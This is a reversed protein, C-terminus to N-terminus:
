CRQESREKRHLHLSRADTKHQHLWLPASGKRAAPSWWPLEVAAWGQGHACGGACGLRGGAPASTGAPRSAPLRHDTKRGQLAAQGAPATRTHVHLSPFPGQNSTASSTRQRICAEGEAPVAAPVAQRHPPQMCLAVSSIRRLGSVVSSPTTKRERDEKKRM